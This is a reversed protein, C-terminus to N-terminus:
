IITATKMQSIYFIRYITYLTFMYFITLRAFLSHYCIIMFWWSNYMIPFLINLTLTEFNHKIPLLFRFNVTQFLVSIM